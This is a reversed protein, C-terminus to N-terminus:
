AYGRLHFTSIDADSSTTTCVQNWNVAQNDQLQAAVSYMLSNEM